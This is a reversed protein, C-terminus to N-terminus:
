HSIVTTALLNKESPQAGSADDCALLEAHINLSGGLVLQLAGLIAERQGSLVVISITLYRDCLEPLDSHNEEDQVGVSTLFIEKSIRSVAIRGTMPGKLAQSSARLRM